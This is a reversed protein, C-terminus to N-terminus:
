RLGGEGLGARLRSLAAATRSKVTGIPVGLRLAIESSSLGVFYALDLVVRQEEPLKAVASRVRTHDFGLPDSPPAGAEIPPALDIPVARSWGASRCRDLARSRMRMVLWGRVTGRASDYDAARQWAEIFVDHLLDETERRNGLIKNGVAMLLPAYRDYLGGLAARDGGSAARILEEDGPGESAHAEVKSVPSLYAATRSRTLHIRWRRVPRTPPRLHM